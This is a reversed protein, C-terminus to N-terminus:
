QSSGDSSTERGGNRGARGVILRWGEDPRCDGAMSCYCYPCRNKCPFEAFTYYQKRYAEQEAKVNGSCDRRAGEESEACEGVPKAHFCNCRVCRENPSIFNNFMMTQNRGLMSSVLIKVNDMYSPHEGAEIRTRWLRLHNRGIIVSFRKGKLLPGEGNIVNFPVEVIASNDPLIVNLDVVKQLPKGKRKSDRTELPRNLMKSEVDIVKQTVYSDPANINIAVDWSVKGSTLRIVGWAVPLKGESRPLEIISGMLACEGTELKFVQNHRNQTSKPEEDQTEGPALPPSGENASGQGKTPHPDFGKAGPRGQVVQSFSPKKGKVVKWPTEKPCKGEHYGKCLGCIEVQGGEEGLEDEVLELASSTPKSQNEVLSECEKAWDSHVIEEEDFNEWTGTRDNVFGEGEPVPNDSTRKAKRDKNRKGSKAKNGKRKAGGM